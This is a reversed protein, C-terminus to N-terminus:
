ELIMKYPPIQKGPQAAINEPKGTDSFDGSHLLVDGNPVELQDTINHTDSLCVFRITNPPQPKEGTHPLLSEMKNKTIKQTNQTLKHPKLSSTYKLLWKLMKIVDTIINRLFYNAATLLPLKVGFPRCSMKLYGFDKVM